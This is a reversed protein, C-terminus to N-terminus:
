ESLSVFIQSSIILKKNSAKAEHIIERISEICNKLEPIRKQALSDEKGFRVQASFNRLEHFKIKTQFMEMLIENAEDVQFVGDILTIKQNSNM